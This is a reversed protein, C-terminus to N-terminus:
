IGGFEVRGSKPAAAQKQGLDAAEEPDPPADRWLIPSGEAPPQPADPAPAGALALRIARKLHMGEGRGGQPRLASFGGRHFLRRAGDFLLFDPTCRIGYARAVAQTQDILYPFIYGRRLAEAAVAAPAEDPDDDSDSSNVALVQLGQAELDWALRSITGALRAAHPCRNAIFAVLLVQAAPYDEPGVVRGTLPEPLRFPKAPDGTRLSRGSNGSM